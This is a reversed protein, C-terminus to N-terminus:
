APTHVPTLPKVMKGQGSWLKWGLYVWPIFDLVNYIPVFWAFNTLLMLPGILMMLAGIWKPYLKTQYIAFGFLLYGLIWVWTLVSDAISYSAVKSLQEATVVGAAVSLRIAVTAVASIYGFVMLTFGVLGIVGGREAIVGYLAMLGLIMIVCAWINLWARPTDVPQGGSLYYLTIVILSLLQALLIAFGGLRFLTQTKM